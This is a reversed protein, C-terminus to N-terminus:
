IFLRWLYYHSGIVAELPLHSARHNLNTAEGLFAFIWFTSYLAQFMRNYKYTVYIHRYNKYPIEFTM